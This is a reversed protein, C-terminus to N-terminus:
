SFYHIDTTCIYSILLIVICKKLVTAKKMQEKPHQHEELRKRSTTAQMDPNKAASAAKSGKTATAMKKEFMNKHICTCLVPTCTHMIYNFPKMLHKSIKFRPLCVSTYIIIDM